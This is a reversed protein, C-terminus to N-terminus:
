SKAGGDLKKVEKQWRAFYDSMERDCDRAETIDCDKLNVVFDGAQWMADHKRINGDLGEKPEYAFNYSNMLRQEVLAVKALITPHWQVMHELAHQEAKQFAYTRYLPDLWADLFFLAWNDPERTDMHAPNNRLIISTHALNDMDQSLILHVHAPKIHSFTHIVSDPPVVPVDKQMISSLNAFIQTSLSLSPNMILAHASLAWFYTTTPHSSLAHRLAPVISWSAPSPSIINEYTTVNTFFNTYGHRAAYDERNKRVNDMLSTSMTAENFVTVLVVSPNSEIEVVESVPVSAMWSYIVYISLLGLVIYGLLQFQRRRQSANQLAAARTFVPPQSTKRPPLAFQM